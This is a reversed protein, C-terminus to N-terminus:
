GVSLRHISLFFDWQIFSGPRKGSGSEGMPRASGGRGACVEWGRVAVPRGSRLTRRGCSKCRADLQLHRWRNWHEDKEENSSIIRPFSTGRPPTGSVNPTRSRPSPIPSALSDSSTLAPPKPNFPTLSNCGTRQVLPLKSLAKGHRSRPDRVARGPEGMGDGGDKSFWGFNLPVRKSEWGEGLQEFSSTETRDVPSYMWHGALHAPPRLFSGQAPRPRRSPYHRPPRPIPGQKRDVISPRPNLDWQADGALSSPDRHPSSPVPLIPSAPIHSVRLFIVLADGRRSEIRGLPFNTHKPEALEHNGCDDCVSVVRGRNLRWRRCVHMYAVAWFCPILLSSAAYLFLRAQTNRQTPRVHSRHMRIAHASPPFPAWGEAQASRPPLPAISTNDKKPPSAQEDPTANCSM